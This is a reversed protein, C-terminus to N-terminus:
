LQIEKIKKILQINEKLINFEKGREYGEIVMPIHKKELYPFLEMFDYDGQSLPTHLLKGQKNSIHLKSVSPLQNYITEFDQKNECHAIDITYSIRKYMNGLIEKFEEFSTILEKPIKEMIELSIRTKQSEAYEIIEELGERARNVYYDREGIVTERPPHITVENAGIELALDISAKIEGISAERISKNLSAINIDWSKSHLVCELGYEKSLTRCIKSNYGNFSCQEAWFEIGGVQYGQAMSFIEELRGDWMLSSSIYINKM